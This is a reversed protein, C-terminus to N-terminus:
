RGKPPSSLKSLLKMGGELKRKRRQKQREKHDNWAAAEPARYGSSQVQHVEEESVRFSLGFDILKFAGTQGCWLINAPKLDGHVIGAAHLSALGTLLDRAFTATAWASLGRRQNRFIIQRINEGLLELVFCNTQRHPLAALCTVINPEAPFRDLVQRERGVAGEYQRGARFVKVAVPAGDRVAEARFVTCCRGAGVQPWCWITLKSDPASM